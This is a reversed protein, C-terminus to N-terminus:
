FLDGIKGRQIFKLKVKPIDWSSGIVGARGKMFIDKKFGGPIALPDAFSGSGRTTSTKTPDATRQKPTVKTIPLPPHGIKPMALPKIGVIAIPKYKTSIKSEQKVSTKLITPTKSWTKPKTDVVTKELTALKTKTGTSPRFVPPIIILRRQKAETKTKLQTKTKTNTEAKTKEKQLEELNIRTKTKSQTKTKSETKTKTKTMTETKTRRLLATGRSNRVEPTSEGRFTDRTGKKSPKVRPEINTDLFKEITGRDIVKTSRGMVETHTGWKPVAPRVEVKNFEIPGMATYKSVEYQVVESKGKSLDMETITGKVENPGVKKFRGEIVKGTEYNIHQYTREKSVREIKVEEVVRGTNYDIRRYTEVEPVKRPEKLYIPEWRDGKKIYADAYRHQFQVDGLRGGKPAPPTNGTPPTKPGTGRNSPSPPKPTPTKPKSGQKGGKLAVIFAAGQGIDEGSLKGSAVKNIKEWAFTFPSTVMDFTHVAIPRVDREALSVGIAHGTGGIMYSIGSALTGAFAGAAAGVERGIPGGFKEGITKGWYVPGEYLNSPSLFGFTKDLDEKQRSRYQEAYTVYSAFTQGINESIKQVGSTMAGSVAGVVTGFVGGIPGRVKVGITNGHDSAQKDRSALNSELIPQSLEITRSRDNSSKVREVWGDKPESNITSRSSTANQVTRYLIINGTETLKVGDWRKKNYIIKRGKIDVVTFHESTFTDYSKADKAVIVKGPEERVASRDYIGLVVNGKKIVVKDDSYVREVENPDYILAGSTEQVRVVRASRSIKRNGSSSSSTGTHVIVKGPEERVASRDYVGIVRDGKKLIVKDELYV